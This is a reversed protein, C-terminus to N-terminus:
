NDLCVVLHTGSEPNSTHDPLQDVLRNVLPRIDGEPQVTRALEWLNDGEHTVITTCNPKSDQSSGHTTEYLLLALGTVVVFGIAGGVRRFSRRDPIQNNEERNQDVTEPRNMFFVIAFVPLETLAVLRGCHPYAM